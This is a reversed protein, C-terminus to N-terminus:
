GWPSSGPTLDLDDPDTEIPRTDGFLDMHTVAQVTSTRLRGEPTLSLPRTQGDVYVSPTESVLGIPMVPLAMPSIGPDVAVPQILDASQNGADGGIVVRPRKAQTVGDSQTVLSEDMKDGAAGPNLTTTTDNVAM